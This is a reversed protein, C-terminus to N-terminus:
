DCEPTALLDEGGSAEKNGILVRSETPTQGTVVVLVM